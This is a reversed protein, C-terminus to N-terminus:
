SYYLLNCGRIDALDLRGLLEFKGDEYIKGLDETAIFACSDKNALDILHIVGNRGETFTEFPDTPDKIVIRLNETPTFIGSGKSYAQSNLETMGYESHIFPVGFSERLAKHLDQKTLEARMGKMGGTEMVLLDPYDVKYTLAFDLLAHSVGLLLVKNTKQKFNILERYLLEKDFPIFRSGNKITINIFHSVMEILSSSKNETYGPLYALITWDSVPGYCSEFGSLSNDLYHKLNKIYHRSRTQKSTGSSIFVREEKWDGTKIIQTKFLSIPLFPIDSVSRIKKEDISLQRIFQSYITNNKAQCRFLELAYETYDNDIGPYLVM